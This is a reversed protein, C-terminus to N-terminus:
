VDFCGGLSLQNSRSHTFFMNIHCNHRNEIPSIKESSLLPLLLAFFKEKTSSEASSRDVRRRIRWRDSMPKESAMSCYHYTAVYPGTFIPGTVRPHDIYLFPSVGNPKCPQVNVSSSLRVIVFEIISIFWKM